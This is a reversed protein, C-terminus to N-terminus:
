PCVDYFDFVIVALKGSPPKDSTAPSQQSQLATERDIRYDVDQLQM